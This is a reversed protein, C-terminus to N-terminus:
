RSTLRRSRFDRANKLCWVILVGRGLLTNLVAVFSERPVVKLEILAKLQLTNYFFMSVYKRVCM